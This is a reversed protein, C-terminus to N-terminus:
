EFLIVNILPHFKGVHLKVTKTTTYVRRLTTLVQVVTIIYVLIRSTVKVNMGKHFLLRPLLLEFTTLNLRVYTRRLFPASSYM